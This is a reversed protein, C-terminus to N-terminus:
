VAVAKRADALHQEVKEWAAALAVWYGDDGPRKEPYFDEDCEENTCYYYEISDPSANTRDKYESAAGEEDVAWYETVAVIAEITALTCRTATSEM